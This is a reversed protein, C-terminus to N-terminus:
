ITAPPLNPRLAPVLNPWLRGPVPWRWPRLCAPAPRARSRKVWGSVSVRSPWCRPRRCPRALAQQLVALVAAPRLAHSMPAADAQPQVPQLAVGGPVSGPVAADVFLVARRGAIALAHEIQLQYEVMLEVRGDAGWGEARLADVLAPGLGDDGRAPNGIGIVLLESTV